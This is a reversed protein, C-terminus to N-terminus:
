QEPEPGSTGVSDVSAPRPLTAIVSMTVGGDMPLDYVQSPLDFYAHEWSCEDSCEVQTVPVCVVRRNRTGTIGDGSMGTAKTLDQTVLLNEAAVVNMLTNDISWLSDDHVMGLAVMIDNCFERYTM